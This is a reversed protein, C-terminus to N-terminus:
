ASVRGGPARGGGGSPRLPGTRSHAGGGGGRRRGPHAPSRWRHWGGGARGPPAYPAIDPPPM